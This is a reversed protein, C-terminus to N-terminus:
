SLVSIGAKLLMPEFGIPVIEIAFVVSRDFRKLQWLFTDSFLGYGGSVVGMNESVMIIIGLCEAKIVMCLWRLLIGVVEQLSDAEIRWFFTNFAFYFLPTSIGWM